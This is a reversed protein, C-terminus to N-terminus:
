LRFSFPSMSFLHACVSCRNYQELLIVFGEHKTVRVLEEVAKAANEKSKKRTAGVLHHLVNKAICYDFTRDRFPLNLATSGILNINPNVQIKYPEPVLECNYLSTVSSAATILDLLAGSGGGIELVNSDPNSTKNVFSIIDKDEPHVLGGRSSYNHITETTFHKRIKNDLYRQVLAEGM